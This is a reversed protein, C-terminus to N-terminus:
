RVYGNERMAKQLAAEAAELTTRPPWLIKSEGKQVPVIAIYAIPMEALNIFTKGKRPPQWFCYVDKESVGALPYVSVAGHGQCAKGFRREVDGLTLPSPLERVDAASISRCPSKGSASWVSILVLLACAFLRAKVNQM